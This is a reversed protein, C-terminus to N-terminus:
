DVESEKAWGTRDVIRRITPYAVGYLRGLAAYSYNGTAYLSKVEQVQQTTLKAKANSEGCAGRQRGKGVMDTINEQQTGAVLHQPNCCRPNDCTHLAFPKNAPFEGHYYVYLLRTAIYARGNFVIQGRGEANKKGVWLWCEDPLGTAIRAFVKQMYMPNRVIDSLPITAM